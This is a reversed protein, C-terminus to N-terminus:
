HHSSWDQQLDGNSAPRRDELRGWGDTPVSSAPVRISAGRDSVGYSFQDIAQTEHLGTLREENHAGYVSMHREINQGFPLQLHQRVCNREVRTVCLETPSIPTCEQAMGTARSQSQITNSTTAMAKLSGTLCTALLGFNTVLKSQARPSSKSNGSAM